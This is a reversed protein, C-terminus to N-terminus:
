EKNDEAVSEEVAADSEVRRVRYGRRENMIKVLNIMTEQQNPTLSLIGKFLTEHRLPVPKTEGSFFEALTVDLARCIKSLTYVTPSKMGNEVASITSQSIGARRALANGSINREVRLQYIRKGVEM